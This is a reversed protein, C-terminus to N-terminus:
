KHENSNRQTGRHEETNRKTGIHEKTYPTVIYVAQTYFDIDSWVCTVRYRGPLM